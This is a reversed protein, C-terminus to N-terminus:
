LPAFVTMIVTCAGSRAERSVVATLVISADTESPAAVVIASLSFASGNRTSGRAGKRTTSVSPPAPTRITTPSRSTSGAPTCGSSM